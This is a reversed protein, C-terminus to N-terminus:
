HHATRIQGIFVAALLSFIFAQLFVVLVELMMIAVGMGIWFPFAVFLTMSLLIFSLVIVHGALMNAFLRITLAFPKTFKSVLEIPTMLFTLPLKLGLPMDHPWYVITNFYGAGLAKMGAFEVVLFTIIALAATTALNGTPTGTYPFMGIANGAFVFFFITIVFPFYKEGGHGGLVPLYVENRLYLVLAEIGAPLGRPRGLSDTDRRHRRGLTLLIALMIAAAWFMWFVHRTPGLDLTANGVHVNWTPLTFHCAWERWGHFCPYEVDKSDTIHPIIVTAATPAEAAHGSQAEAGAQPTNATPTVQGAAPEAATGSSPHDQANAAGAAILGALIVVRSM